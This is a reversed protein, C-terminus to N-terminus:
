TFMPTLIVSERELNESWQHRVLVGHADRVLRRSRSTSRHMDPFSPKESSAKGGSATM